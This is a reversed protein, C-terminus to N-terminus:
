EGIRGRLKFLYYVGIIHLFAIFEIIVIYVPWEGIIFPNPVSPKDCLYLYNAWKNEPLYYYSIFMNIFGIVPILLQSGIFIKLWSKNRINYKMVCCLYLASLLIGGHSIYYDYFLYGDPGFGQTFQPTLFSHIASPIGLLIIFEFLTQNFRILLIGALISSIGCLHLPLSKHIFWVGHYGLYIQEFVFRFLSSQTLIGGSCSM